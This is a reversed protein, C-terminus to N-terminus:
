YQGTCKCYSGVLHNKVMLCKKCKLDQMQYSVAKKNLLSVLRKEIDDVNLASGCAQCLWRDQVAGEDAQDNLNTDRCLDLDSSQTCEKCIVDPLVLVLAPELGDKTQPAFEKLELKNLLNKRLGIMEKYFDSELGFIHECVFKV